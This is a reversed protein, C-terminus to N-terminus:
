RGIVKRVDKVKEAISAVLVANDLDWELRRMIEAAIDRNVTLEPRERGIDFIMRRLHGRKFVRGTQKRRAPIAKPDGDYGFMALVHDVHAIRGAIERRRKDTEALESALEGRKKVLASIIHPEAM